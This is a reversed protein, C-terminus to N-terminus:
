LGLYAKRVLDSGLLDTGKGEAIIKGTQIVYARDAMKLSNSIDQEVLLVTTGDDNIKKVTEYIRMVINPQVGLSPEDLMLLRPTLMLGRGIACMQQEGGSLTGAIQSRREALKPFLDLVYALREQKYKKDNVSYAGLMLNQHVTMYPFLLRAEPVHAIKYQNVIEAPNMHDIRSGDFLIEGSRPRITGSITRLLTSKGAGNSGVISIFEGEDVHLSINELVPVGKYGSCVDKLQLLM